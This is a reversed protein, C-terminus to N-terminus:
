VVEVAALQTPRHAINPTGPCFVFRCAGLLQTQKLLPTALSHTDKIPCSLVHAHGRDIVRVSGGDRWDTVPLRPHSSATHRREFVHLSSLRSNM